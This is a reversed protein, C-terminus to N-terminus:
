SSAPGISPPPDPSFGPWQFELSLDALSDLRGSDNKKRANFCEAIYRKVIYRKVIYRKIIYRKVIYRKVIYRKIILTQCRKM